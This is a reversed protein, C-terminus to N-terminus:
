PGFTTGIRTPNYGGGGDQAQTKLDMFNEGDRAFLRRVNILSLEDMKSITLDAHALDYHRYTGVMGVAKMTCNHSATIFAPSGTFTVCKKPPRAIKISASLLQSAHTDMDDEATVLADFVQGLSLRDLANTVADRSMTSVVAKPINFEDVKQLWEEVGPLAQSSEEFKEFYIENLRYGLRRAYAFDRTWCLMETIAREPVSEYIFPREIEPWKFDEEEALQKWAERLLDKTDTIVGDWTFILGHAEDPAIGSHRIRTAGKVELRENLKDVDLRVDGSFRFDVFGTDGYEAGVQDRPDEDESWGEGDFSSRSFEDVGMAGVAVRPSFSCSLYRRKGGRDERRVSGGCTLWRGSSARRSTSASVAGGSRSSSSSATLVSGRNM